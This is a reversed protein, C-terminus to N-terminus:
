HPADNEKANEGVKILIGDLSRYSTCIVLLYVLHIKIHIVNSSPYLFRSSDSTQEIHNIKLSELRKIMNNTHKETIIWERNPYFADMINGSSLPGNTGVTHKILNLM